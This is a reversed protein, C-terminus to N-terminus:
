GQGRRKNSSWSPAASLRAQKSRLRRSGLGQAIRQAAKTVVAIKSYVYGAVFVPAQHCEGPHLFKSAADCGSGADGAPRDAPLEGAKALLPSSRKRSLRNLVPVIGRCFFCAARVAILRGASVSAHRGSQAWLCQIARRRDFRLAQLPMQARSAAASRRARCAQVGQGGGADEEGSEGVGDLVVVKRFRTGWAVAAARAIQILAVRSGLFWTNQAQFAAKSNLM